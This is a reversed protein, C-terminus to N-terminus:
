MYAQLPNLSAVYILLITKIINNTFRQHIFFETIQLM